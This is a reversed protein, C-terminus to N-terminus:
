SFILATLYDTSFVLRGAGYVGTRSSGAKSLDKWGLAGGRLIATAPHPLTTKRNKIPRTHPLRSWAGPREPLAYLEDKAFIAVVCM